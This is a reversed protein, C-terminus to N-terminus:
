PVSAVKFQVVGFASSGGSETFAQATLDPWTGFTGAFTVGMLSGGSSGVVNGQTASGMLFSPGMGNTNSPGVLSSTANDHCVGFWYFGPGLQLSVAANVNAATTTSMSATSALAAGTPRMTAANNAYIAAQVNGAAQTTAIRVGLTNLTIQQMIYGPFLRVSNTGPAGGAAMISIGSPIYWNGAVYGPFSIPLVDSAAILRSATM